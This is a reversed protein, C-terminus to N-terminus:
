RPPDLASKGDLVAGLIERTRDTMGLNATHPWEAIEDRAFESWREILRLYDVVFAALLAAIHRREPFPVDDDTVYPRLLREIGDDLLHRAREATEDLWRALTDKDTQDAFLLRLLTEFELQPDRPPTAFWAHLAGRGDDTISYITRKRRGNHETHTTAWGLQLLRKGEEYLHSETRPHTYRLSRTAQQALEYASWPRLSLLGLLAYTSTTPRRPM